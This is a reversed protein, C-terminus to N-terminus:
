IRGKKKKLWRMAQRLTEQPEMQRIIRFPYIGDFADCEQRVQRLYKLTWVEFANDVLGVFYRPEDGKKMYQSEANLVIIYEM